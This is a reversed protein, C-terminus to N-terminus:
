DLTPPPAVIEIGYPALRRAFTEPDPVVPDPEPEGDLVPIGMEAFFPEFGAPAFTVLARARESRVLYTHPVDRPMFVFDGAAADIRRDDIFVSVLGDLVYFTEDEQHHMHVPPATGRPDNVEVQACHGNTDRGTTKIEVRGGLWWVAPLGTHEVLHYTRTAQSITAM